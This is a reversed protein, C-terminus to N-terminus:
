ETEHQRRRRASRVAVETSYWAAKHLWRMMAADSPFKPSKRHLLVFVAQAVDDALHADHLRRRAVGYVWGIHRRVLEAFAKEDGRRHQELLEVDTMANRDGCRAFVSM